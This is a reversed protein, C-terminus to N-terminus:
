NVACQQQLKGEQKCATINHFQLEPENGQMNHNIKIALCQQRPMRAATCAFSSVEAWPMELEFALASTAAGDGVGQCSIASLDRVYCYHIVEFFTPALSHPASNNQTNYKSILAHHSLFM